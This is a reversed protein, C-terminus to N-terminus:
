VWVMKPKIVMLFHKKNEKRTNPTFFIWFSVHKTVYFCICKPIPVSQSHWAHLMLIFQFQDFITVDFNLLCNMQLISFAIDVLILTYFVMFREKRDFTCMPEGVRCHGFFITFVNKCNLLPCTITSCIEPQKCTMKTRECSIERSSCVDDFLSKFYILYKM